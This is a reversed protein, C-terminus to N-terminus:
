SHHDNLMTAFENQRQTTKQKKRSIYFAFNDALVQCAFCFATRTRENGTREDPDHSKVRKILESQEPKGPVFANTSLADERVDLRLDAERKAADPGHCFFCKDSLIPRVDRNFQIPKQGFVSLSLFFGHLDQTQPPPREFLIQRGMGTIM